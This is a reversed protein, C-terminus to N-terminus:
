QEVFLKCFCGLINCVRRSDKVAQKRAKKEELCEGKVRQPVVDNSSTTVCSTSEDIEKQRKTLGRQTLVDDPIETHKTLKIPRPQLFCLYM